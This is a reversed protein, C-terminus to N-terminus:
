HTGASLPLSGLRFSAATVVGDDLVCFMPFAAVGFARVVPGDAPEAVVHAVSSLLGALKGREPDVGAVVAIAQGGALTRAHSMFQPILDKCSDCGTAFFGVLTRGAALDASRLNAGGVTLAAFEAPRDGSRPMAISARGASVSPLGGGATLVNLKRAIGASFVLNIIGLLGLSLVVVVSLM